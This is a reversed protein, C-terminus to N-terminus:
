TSIPPDDEAVLEEAAARILKSLQEPIIPKVLHNNFGSERARDVDAQQGFGTLAILRTGDLERLLRIRRALEHGDIGPLGIDLLGIHPRHTCIADYGEEGSGVPIVTHGDLELLMRIMNRNEQRDEVVVIKLPRTPKLNTEQPRKDHLRVPHSPKHIPLRVIFSSGQGCGLSFAEVQGDHLDVLTKVLALGVGLGGDRQSATAEAQAFPEFLQGLFDQEIGDGQDTVSIIAKDMERCLKVTVEGGPPSYKAANHILNVQIQILRAPDGFVILPQDDINWNMVTGHDAIVSSTTEDVSDVLSRLDIRERKLEIKGLSIRSVDLLDNLLSRMLGVQREVTMAAQRRVDDNTRDDRLLHGATLVAGLPNRLEHSLVALFHERQRMQQRIAEEMAIRATIDRAIKSIGIVRGELDVVPSITLSVHIPQGAKRVRVTDTTTSRVEQGVIAIYDRTEGIRDPPILISIHKGIVERASYDFLHQAGPNWSTITGDLRLGIIADDTSTVIASMWRLQERLDELSSVDIVMMVVGDAVAGLPEGLQTAPYDIGADPKHSNSRAHLEDFSQRSDDTSRRHCTETLYPLLRMIFTAGESPRLEREYPMGSSLVQNLLPILDPIDILAPFGSLPQGVDHDELDFVKRIRSTFRRVRLEHDLSITAVETSELLHNTDRYLETLEGIKRQYAANASSLEENATHLKQHTDQLKELSVILEHLTNGLGPSLHPVAALAIEVQHRHSHISRELSVQDGAACRADDTANV